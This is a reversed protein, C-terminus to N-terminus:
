QSAIKVPVVVAHVLDNTLLRECGSMDVGLAAGVGNAHPDVVAIAAQNGAGGHDSDVVHRGRGDNARWERLRSAQIHSEVSRAGGFGTLVDGIVPVQVVVTQVAVGRTYRGRHTPRHCRDVGHPQLDSIRVVRSVGSLHRDGDFRARQILKDDRHWGAARGAHSERRDDRSLVLVAIDDSM